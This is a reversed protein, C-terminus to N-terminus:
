SLNSTPNYQGSYASYAQGAFNFTLTYTGAASPTFSYAQSSTPDSITAFNQTTNTGDPATIILNFDHFRYNNSLLAESTGVTATGAAGFVSDLWMYVHVTQGVGIPNPAAWIYAYTPISWAPTHANVNPILIISTSMSISLLVAFIIAISKSNPKKM